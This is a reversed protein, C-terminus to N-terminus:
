SVVERVKEVHEKIRILLEARERAIPITKAGQDRYLTPNFLPLFSDQHEVYELFKALDENTLCSGLVAADIINFCEAIRGGIEAMREIEPTVRGGGAPALGASKGWRELSV